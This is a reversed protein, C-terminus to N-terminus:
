IFHHRTIGHPICSYLSSCSYVTVQLLALHEKLQLASLMKFFTPSSKELPIKSINKNKNKNKIKKETWNRYNMRSSPGLNLGLDILLPKNEKIHLIVM